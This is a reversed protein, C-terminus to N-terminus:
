FINKIYIAFAVNHCVGQIYIDHQKATSLSKEEEEEEEEEVDDATTAERRQNPVQL